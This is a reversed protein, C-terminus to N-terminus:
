RIASAIKDLKGSKELEALAEMAAAARELLGVYRELREFNALKEVRNLGDALKQASDRVTGSVKKTKEELQKETDVLRDMAHSFVNITAQVAETVENIKKEMFRGRRQLHDAEAIEVLVNRNLTEKDFRPDGRVFVNKHPRALSSLESRAVTEVGAM